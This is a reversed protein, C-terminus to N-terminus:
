GGGDFHSRSVLNTGMQIRSTFIDNAGRGMVHPSRPLWGRRFLAHMCRTLTTVYFIVRGWWSLRRETAVKTLNLYGAGAHFSTFAAGPGGFKLGFGLAEYFAVARAMDHTALTIASVGEIM